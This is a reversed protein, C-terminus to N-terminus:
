PDAYTVTWSSPAIVGLVIPTLQFFYPDDASKLTQSVSPSGAGAYLTATGDKSHIDIRLTGTFTVTAKKATAPVRFSVFDVPDQSGLTGQLCTSLVNARARDNNPEVESSCIGPVAAAGDAPTGGDDKTSSSADDSPADDSASPELLEQPESGACSTELCCAIAFALSGLFRFRRM